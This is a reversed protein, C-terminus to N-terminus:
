EAAQGGGMGTHVQCARGAHGGSSGESEPKQIQGGAEKRVRTVQLVKVKVCGLQGGERSEGAGQNGLGPGSPSGLTQESGHRTLHGPRPEQGLDAGTVARDWQRLREQRGTSWPPPTSRPATSGPVKEGPPATVRSPPPCLPPLLLLAPSLAARPHGCSAQHSRGSHAGREGRQLQTNSCTAPQRTTLARLTRPRGIRRRRARAEGIHREPGAGQGTSAGPWPCVNSAPEQQGCTPCEGTVRGWGM